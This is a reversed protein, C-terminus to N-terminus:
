SYYQIKKNNLSLTHRDVLEVCLLQSKSYMFRYFPTDFKISPIVDSLPLSPSSASSISTSLSLPSSSAWLCKKLNKYVCKNNKTAVENEVVLTCKNIHLLHKKQHLYVPTHVVMPYGKRTDDIFECGNEEDNLNIHESQLFYELSWNKAKPPVVVIISMLDNSMPMRYIVVDYFSKTQVCPNLHSTFTATIADRSFPWDFYGKYSSQELLYNSNFLYNFKRSIKAQLIFDQTQLKDKFHYHFKNFLDTNHTADLFSPKYILALNFQKALDSWYNKDIKNPMPAFVTYQQRTSQKNHKQKSMQMELNIRNNESPERFQMYFACFLLNKLQFDLMDSGLTRYSMREFRLIEPCFLQMFRLHSVNRLALLINNDDENLAVPIDAMINNYHDNILANNREGGIGTVTKIKKVYKERQYRCLLAILLQLDEHVNSSSSTSTLPLPPSSSSSPSAVLPQVMSVNSHENKISYSM